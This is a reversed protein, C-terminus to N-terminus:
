FKNLAIAEDFIKSVRVWRCRGICQDSRPGHCSNRSQSCTPSCAACIRNFLEPETAGVSEMAEKNYKTPDSKKKDLTDVSVDLASSRIDPEIRNSQPQYYGAVESCDNVCLRRPEKGWPREISWRRCVACFSPGPGWCGFDSNCESACIANKGGKALWILSYSYVM